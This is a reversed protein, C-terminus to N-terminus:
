NYYYTFISGIYKKKLYKLDLYKQSYKQELERHNDNMFIHTNSDGIISAMYISKMRGICKNSYGEPGNIIIIDWKSKMISESLNLYLKDTDHIINKWCKLKTNYNIYEVHEDSFSKNTTIIKTYGRSNIKFWNLDEKKNSFILLKCENYPLISWSIFELLSIDINWNINLIFNMINKPLIVINVSESLHSKYEKYKKIIIDNECRYKIILEKEKGPLPDSLLYNLNYYKSIYLWDNNVLSIIKDTVNKYVDNIGYLAEIIELKRNYMKNYILKVNLKNKTIYGNPVDIIRSINRINSLNKTFNGHIKLKKGVFGHWKFTFINTSNSLFIAWYCFSSNSCIVNNFQMLKYFDNKVSNHYFIPKLHNFKELYDKEWKYRIKDTVIYLKSYKLLKLTNIYYEPNIVESSDEDRMFDSLRIHLIVDQYNLEFKPIRFFGKILKEYKNLYESNQFFGSFKYRYNGYYKLEDDIYDSSTIIKIPLTDDFGTNIPEVIDLFSNSLNANFKLNNITAYVRSTIYIFLKNGFRGKYKLIEVSM